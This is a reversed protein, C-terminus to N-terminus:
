NDAYVLRRGSKHYALDGRMGDGKRIVLPLDSEAWEKILRGWGREIQFDLQPRLESIAWQRGAERMTQSLQDPIQSNPLRNM